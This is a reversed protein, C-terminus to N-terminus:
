IVIPRYKPANELLVFCHLAFIWTPECTKMFNGYLINLHANRQFKLHNEISFLTHQLWLLLMTQLGNTRNFHNENNNIWNSYIRQKEIAKIFVDIMSSSHLLQFQFQFVNAKHLSSQSIAFFTHWVYSEFSIGIFWACLAAYFSGDLYKVRLNSFLSRM